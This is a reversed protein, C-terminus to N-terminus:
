NILELKVATVLDHKRKLLQLLVPYNYIRLVRSFTIVGEAIRCEVFVTQESRRYSYM